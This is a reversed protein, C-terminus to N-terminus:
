RGMSAKMDQDVWIRAWYFPTNTMVFNPHEGSYGMVYPQWYHYVTPFPLALTMHSEAVYKDAEVCWQMAEGTSNANNYNVVLEDFGAYNHNAKNQGFSALASLGISPSFGQNIWLDMQDQKKADIFAGESTPDMTIIEMDVGIDLFQSKVIQVIFSDQATSMIINTDFGGYENVEFIGDAACQALLDMAGEPNYEYEAKLDDSWEEYPYRYEELYPVIFGYPTPDARGGYYSEAILERDIAMSLAKRVRIDNFPATDNRLFICLANDVAETKQLEDNTEALSDAQQWPVNWSMDLNGSRLAAIETALDAINVIKIEDVYPLQNEPHREDFGWYNDYRAVSLSSGAIYDELVWPGTGVNNAWNQTDGQEVWERAEMYQVNLDLITSLNKAPTPNKFTAVATYKDTATVRELIQGIGLFAYFMSPETFGSGTGLIRDFHYQVDEATFERGNVPEIDQWYVGERINITLTTSDVWEWSEAILGASITEDVWGAIISDRNEETWDTTFLPEFCVSGINLWNYPDFNDPFASGRIWTMTITGGYEPESFKDWWDGGGITGGGTTEGGTTGGDTNGEDCAVTFSPIALLTLILLGMILKRYM